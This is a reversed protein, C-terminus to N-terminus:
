EISHFKRQYKEMEELKGKKRLSACIFKKVIDYIVAFLPVGIVMGLVGFLGGFLLISFLVWFSSLGTSDGLIKPGLINGDFQQLALIFILFYICGMINIGGSDSILVLFASPVAGIFPGFFPIINTVGIIVSILLSYPMKFISMCAFCIIGIILSDVLKGRIFGGFMRNAIDLEELIMDAIKENCISRLVLGGQAMFQRRRGMLYVSIIIGILLNKVVGITSFVGKYVTTMLSQMNPLLYTTLFGEINDNLTDVFQLLYDYIQENGDFQELILKKFDSLSSPFVEALGMMSVMLDPIVMAFLLYILFIALVLTSIISIGDAMRELKKYKRRRLTTETEEKGHKGHFLLFEVVNRRIKGKKDHDQHTQANKIKQKKELDIMEKEKTKEIEKTSGDKQRIVIDEFKDGSIRILLRMVYRSIRNSVPTLLYAIVAGIIFPMLIGIFKDFINGIDKTNYLIYFFLISCVIVFFGTLGAYLYKHFEEKKM